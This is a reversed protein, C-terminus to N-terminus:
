KIKCRSVRRRYCHQWDGSLGLKIIFSTPGFSFIQFLNSHFHIPRNLRTVQHFLAPSQLRWHLCTKMTSPLLFHLSPQLQMNKLLFHLQQKRWVSRLCIKITHVCQFAESVCGEVRIQEFVNTYETQLDLCFWAMHQFHTWYHSYKLLQALNANNQLAMPMKKWSLQSWLYM